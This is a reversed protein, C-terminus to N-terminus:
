AAKPDKGAKRMLAALAAGPDKAWSFAKEKSVFTKGHTKELSKLRAQAEKKTMKGYKEDLEQEASELMIEKMLHRLLSEDLKLM